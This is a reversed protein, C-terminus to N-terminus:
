RHRLAQLRRPLVLQQVLVRIKLRKKFTNDHAAASAHQLTSWDRLLPFSAGNGVYVYLPVRPRYLVCLPCSITVHQCDESLRRVRTDQLAFVPRGQM